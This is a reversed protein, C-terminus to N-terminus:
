LGENLLDQLTLDGVSRRRQFHLIDQIVDRPPRQPRLPMLIAVPKGRRAILFQEGRVVRDLLQLFQNKAEYADLQEM